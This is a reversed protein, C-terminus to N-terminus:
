IDLKERNINLNMKYKDLNFDKILYNLRGNPDLRYIAIDTSLGGSIVNGGKLVL